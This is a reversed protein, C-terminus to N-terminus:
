IAFPRSSVYDLSLWAYPVSTLPPSYTLKIYIVRKENYIWYKRKRQMSLMVLAKKKAFEIENVRKDTM